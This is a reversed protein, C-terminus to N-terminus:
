IIGPGVPSMGDRKPLSWHARKVVYWAPFLLCPIAVPLVMILAPHATPRSMIAIQCLLQELRAKPNTSGVESAYLVFNVRPQTGLM